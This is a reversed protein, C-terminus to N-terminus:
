WCVVCFFTFALGIFDNQYQYRREKEFSVRRTYESASQSNFCIIEQLYLDGDALLGRTQM